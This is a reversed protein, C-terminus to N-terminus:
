HNRPRANNRRFYRTHSKSVDTQKRELAELGNRCLRAGIAFAVHLGYLGYAVVIITIMMVRYSWEEYQESM